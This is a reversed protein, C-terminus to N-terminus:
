SAGLELDELAHALRSLEAALARARTSRDASGLERLLPEAFTQADAPLAQVPDTVGLLTAVAVYSRHWSV